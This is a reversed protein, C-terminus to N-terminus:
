KRRDMKCITQDMDRVGARLFASCRNVNKLETWNLRETTDSERRCWLSCCALGGQGDGVGMTWGFGHGNPRHHWGVMEDETM